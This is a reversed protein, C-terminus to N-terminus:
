LCDHLIYCSWYISLVVSIPIALIHIALTSLAITKPAAANRVQFGLVLAYAAFMPALAALGFLLSHFLGAVTSDTTAIAVTALLYIGLVIAIFPRIRVRPACYIASAGVLAAVPSLWLWAKTFAQVV